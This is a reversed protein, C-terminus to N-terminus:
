EEDSSSIGVYDSNDKSDFAFSMFIRGRMMIMHVIMMNWMVQM